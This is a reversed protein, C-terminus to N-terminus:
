VRSQKQPRNDKKVRYRQGTRKRYGAGSVRAPSTESRKHASAPSAAGPTTKPRHPSTPRAPKFNTRLPAPRNQLNRAIKADAKEQDTKNEDTAGRLAFLGAHGGGETRENHLYWGLIAAFVGIILLFEISDM